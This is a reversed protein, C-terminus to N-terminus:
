KKAGFFVAAAQRMVGLEASVVEDGNVRDWWDAVCPYDALPRAAGFMPALLLLYSIHPALALDGRHLERGVPNVQSALLRELRALETHMNAVLVEANDTKGVSGFMPFVASPGLCTDVCRGLILMDSCALFDNRRVGSDSFQELYEMIVWSDSLHFGDDLELVPIKGYPFRANFEPTRWPVPPPEIDVPLKDRRIQVRVRTAYPSHDLNYLKM